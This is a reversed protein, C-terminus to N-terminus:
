RRAPCARCRSTASPLTAPPARRSTNDWTQYGLADGQSGTASTSTHERRAGRQKSPPADHRRLDLAQIASPPTTSAAHAQHDHFLAGYGVAPITIATPPTGPSRARCAGSDGVAVNYGGARCPLPAAAKCRRIASRRQQDGPRPTMAHSDYGIATNPNAAMSRPHPSPTMCASRSTNSALQHRWRHNGACPTQDGVAVNGGPAATLPNASSAWRTIASPSTPPPRVHHHLIRADLGLLIGPAPRLGFLAHTAVGGYQQQNRGPHQGLRRFASSTTNNYALCPLRPFVKWLRLASPSTTATATTAYTGAYAGLRPTRIPRHHQSNLM